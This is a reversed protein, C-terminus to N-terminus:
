ETYDSKLMLVVNSQDLIIEQNMTIIEREYSTMRDPVVDNLDLVMKLRDSPMRVVIANFNDEHADKAFYGAIKEDTSWSVILRQPSLTFPVKEGRELAAFQEDDIGTGRYLMGSYTVPHKKALNIIKRELPRSAGSWADDKTYEDWTELADILEQDITETAEILRIIDRMRM